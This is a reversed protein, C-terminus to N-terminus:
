GDGDTQVQELRDGAYDAVRKWWSGYPAARGLALRLTGEPPDDPSRPLQVVQYATVSQANLSQLRRLAEERRPDGDRHTFVPSLYHPEIHPRLVEHVIPLCTLAINDLDKGQEPPVVLFTVKVPVVLSRFLPWQRRFAELQGRVMRRFQEGQGGATPLGPLPLTLPGSLLTRRNMAELEAARMSVEPQSRLRPPLNRKGMLMTLASTLVADIVALHEEQRRELRMYRTYDDLFALIQQYPGPQEGQDEFWPDDDLIRPCWFPDSEARDYDDWGDYEGSRLEEALRLDAIVDRLPRATLYTCGNPEGPSDWRQRHSVYLLRVQKDDKYLVSRRGPRTSEPAATGLVDLVHKALSYIAPPNKRESVFHLDLAVPGTFAHRGFVEMDNLAQWQFAAASRSGRRGKREPEEDVKVLITRPFRAARQNAWGEPTRLFGDSGAM